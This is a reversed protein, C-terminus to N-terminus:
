LAKMMVARDECAACVASWKMIEMWVYGVVCLTRARLRRRSCLRGRCLCCLVLCLHASSARRPALLPRRTRPNGQQLYPYRGVYAQIHSIFYVLQGKPVISQASSSVSSGLPLWCRHSSLQSSSSAFSSKEFCNAYPVGSIICVHVFSVNWGPLLQLLDVLPSTPLERAHLCHRKPPVFLSLM